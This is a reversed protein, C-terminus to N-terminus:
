LPPHLAEIYSLTRVAIDNRTTVHEFDNHKTTYGLVCVRLLDVPTSPTNLTCAQVLSLTYTTSRPNIGFQSVTVQSARGVEKLGENTCNWSNLPCHHSCLFPTLNTNPNTFGSHQLYAYITSRLRWMHFRHYREDFSLVFHGKAHIM